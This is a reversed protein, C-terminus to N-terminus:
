LLSVKRTAVVQAQAHEVQEEEVKEDHDRRRKQPREGMIEGTDAQTEEKRNKKKKKGRKKKKQHM